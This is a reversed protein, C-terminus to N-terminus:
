VKDLVLRAQREGLKSWGKYAKLTLFYDKHKDYYLRIIYV